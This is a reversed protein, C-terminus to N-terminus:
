DRKYYKFIKRTRWGFVMVGLNYVLFSLMIHSHSNVFKSVREHHGINVIIEKTHSVIMYASLFVRAPNKYKNTGCTLPSAKRVEQLLRSTAQIVAPKQLLGVTDHFSMNEITHVSIDFSRYTKIVKSFQRIRWHNQIIVAAEERTPPITMENSFIRSKPVTLLRARRAATARQRRELDARRRDIEEQNKLQQQRAVEKCRAVEQACQEVLRQLITNRNKEALRLTQQIQSRKASSDNLARQHQKILVDKVHLFQRALKLRRQELIAERKMQADYPSYQLLKDDGHGHGYSSFSKKSKMRKELHFPRKSTNHLPLVDIVYFGSDTKHM